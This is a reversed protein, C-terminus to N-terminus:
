KKYDTKCELNNTIAKLMQRCAIRVNENKDYEALTGIAEYGKESGVEFLSFAMLMRIEPDKEEKLQNVLFGEAEKMQYYGIYYICSKKLGTIDSQIGAKLNELMKEYRKHKSRLDMRGSALVDASNFLLVSVFLFVAIGKVTSNFKTKM